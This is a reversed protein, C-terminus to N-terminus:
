NYQVKVDLKTDTILLLDVILKERRDLLTIDINMVTFNGDENYVYGTCKM